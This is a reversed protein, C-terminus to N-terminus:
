GGLARRFWEVLRLVTDPERALLVTGHAPTSAWQIERIGPPDQALAKVSRAAYPDALSAMLLAPRAGYQRMAGEIRVGRYDLSPSVLALARIRGDAAAALAALNAGLSAGAVGIASARIEARSSLYTVAAGIDRHWESLEQATAPLSQGRLDIALATINADALRQAAEQWDDKSRGLMPVLVVAPSPRLSAEFLLGGIARGDNARIAVLRGAADVSCVLILGCLIAAAARALQLHLAPM